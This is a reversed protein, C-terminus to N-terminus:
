PEVGAGLCGALSEGRDVREALAEMTWEGEGRVIADVEPFQQLCQIPIPSAGPGGMVITAKRNAKRCLESLWLNQRAIESFYPFAYIDAQAETIRAEVEADDFSGVLRLM